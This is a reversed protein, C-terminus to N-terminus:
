CEDGGASGPGHIFEGSEHRVLKATEWRSDVGQAEAPTVGTSEFEAESFVEDHSMRCSKHKSVRAAAAAGAAKAAVAAVPTATAYHDLGMKALFVVVMTAFLIGIFVVPSKKVTIVRVM